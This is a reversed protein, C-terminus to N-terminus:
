KVELSPLNGTKEINQVISEYAAAQEPDIKELRKLITIVSAADKIGSFYPVLNLYITKTTNSVYGGELATEVEKLGDPKDNLYDSLLVGRFYHVDPVAPDEKEASDLLNEADKIKGQEALNIAYLYMIEQRGPQFSLAKEYVAEEKLLWSKDNTYLWKQQYGRGLKLEYNSLYPHVALYEEMKKITLDLVLSMVSYNQKNLNGVAFDLADYRILYQANTQPEFIFNNHLLSDIDGASPNKVLAVFSSMQLYPILTGYLFAYGFFLTGAIAGAILLL